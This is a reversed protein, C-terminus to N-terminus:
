KILFNLYHHKENLQKVYQELFKKDMDSNLRLTMSPHLTNTNAMKIWGYYGNVSGDYWATSPIGEYRILYEMLDDHLIEKYQTTDDVIYLDYNPTTIGRIEASMNKISPPNKYVDFFNGNDSRIKYKLEEEFLNQVEELIIENITSKKEGGNTPPSIPEYNYNYFNGNNGNIYYVTHNIKVPVLDNGNNFFGVEDFWMNPSLLNGDKKLFNWKNDKKVVAFGNEFDGVDDFWM